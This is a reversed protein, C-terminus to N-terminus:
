VGTTIEIQTMRAVLEQTLKSFQRAISGAAANKEAYLVIPLRERSAQGVSTAHKVEPLIPIGQFTREILERINLNLKTKATMMPVIGLIMGRRGDWEEQVEKLRRIVGRIGYVSLYEMQSPIIVYQAAYLGNTTIDTASPPTDIIVYNYDNSLGSKQIANSLRKLRNGIVGSLAYDTTKYSSPLVDIKGSGVDVTLNLLPNFASACIYETHNFDDKVYDRMFESVEKREEFSSLIKEFDDSTPANDLEDAKNVGLSLSANAQDDLDIVLVKNGQRALEYALNVVLTTKGVGGKSTHVAITRMKVSELFGKLFSSLPRVDHPNKIHHSDKLMVHTRSCEYIEILYPDILVGYKIHAHRLYKELQFRAADDIRVKATKVEILFNIHRSFDEILFDVEKDTVKFHNKNILKPVEIKFEPIWHSYSSKPPLGAMRLMEQVLHLSVYAENNWDPSLQYM